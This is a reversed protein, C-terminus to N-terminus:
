FGFDWLTSIDGYIVIGIIVLTQVFLWLGQYIIIPKEKHTIGYLLWIVTVLQYAVWSSLSLDKASRTHFIQIVQPLGALPEVFATVMVAKDIWPKKAPKRKLTYAM